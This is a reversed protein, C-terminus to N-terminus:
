PRFSLAFVMTAVFINFLLSAATVGTRDYSEHCTYAIDAALNLYHENNPSSVSGLAFMGGVACVDGCRM